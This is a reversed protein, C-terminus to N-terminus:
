VQTRDEIIPTVCTVRPLMCARVFALLWLHKCPCRRNRWSQSRGNAGGFLRRVSICGAGPAIERLWASRFKCPAYSISTCPYPTSANTSIDTSALSVFSSHGHKFEHDHVHTGEGTVLVVAIRTGPAGMVLQNVSEKTRDKM